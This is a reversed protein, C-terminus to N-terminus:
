TDQGALADLPSARLYPGLRGAVAGHVEDVLHELRLAVGEITLTHDDGARSVDGDVRDLLHVLKASRDDGARVGLSIDHVGLSHIEIEELLDLLHATPPDR